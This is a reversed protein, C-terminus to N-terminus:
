DALNRLDSELVEREDAETVQELYRLAEALHKNKQAPDKAVAAARALAEHGYAIHFPELGAEEAIRLASLAYRHAEGARGALAYVRALQWDGISLNERTHGEYQQWHWRSAHALHIMQTTQAEDRSSRDILEWVANFCDVAFRRHTAQEENVAPQTM